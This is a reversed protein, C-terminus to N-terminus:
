SGLGGEGPLPSGAGCPGAPPSGCVSAPLHGRTKRPPHTALPHQPPDATGRVGSGVCGPSGSGAPGPSGTPSALPLAGPVCTDGPAVSTSPILALRALLRDGSGQPPCPPAPAPRHITEKQGALSEFIGWANLLTRASSPRGPEVPPIDKPAMPFTSSSPFPVEPLFSAPSRNTVPPVPTRLTA